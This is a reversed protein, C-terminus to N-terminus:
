SPKRYSVRLTDAGHQWSLRSEDLQLGQNVLEPVELKKYFKCNSTRIVISQSKSDVEISYTSTPYSINSVIWQFAGPTDDRSVSPNTKSPALVDGNLAEPEREPSTMPSRKPPTKEGYEDVIQWGDDETTHIDKETGPKDCMRWSRDQTKEVIGVPACAKNRFGHKEVEKIQTVCLKELQRSISSMQAEKCEATNSVFRLRDELTGTPELVEPKEVLKGDAIKPSTRLHRIAHVDQSRRRAKHAPSSGAQATARKAAVEVGATSAMYTEDDSDTDIAAVMKQAM